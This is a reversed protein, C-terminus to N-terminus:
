RMLTVTGTYVRRTGDEFWVDAKWAYAGQPAFAGQFTGDWAATPIPQNEEEAYWVQQGQPSFVGINYRKIGVGTPKFVQIKADGYTPTFANPAFFAKLWEPAVPKIITDTCVKQGQNDNYAILTVQIQRNISYEYFPDTETSKKGDGFLWLYRNALKSLNKFQVDGLLKPNLNAQYSFDAKPRQFLRLTGKISDRCRENYIAVLNINYLGPRDFKVTIDPTTFTGLETITWRYSLAEESNNKFTIALPACRDTTLIEYEALPKGFIDVPKSITDRCAFENQAIMTVTYVGEKKYIHTDQNRQSIGGDGYQWTFGQALRSLNTFIVTAPTGCENPKQFGFDAIPKPWVQVNITDRGTPCGNASSAALTVPYLGPNRFTYSPNVQTSSNNDYTWVYNTASKSSNGFRLALDECGKFNASDIRAIPSELITITQSLTDACNFRNQTILQISQIGTKRPWFSPNELRSNEDQFRWWYQVADVSQNKLRLSDYGLCYKKTQFSFQTKPLDYVFINLLSTDAFCSDQDYVTLKVVFNGPREFVHSPNFNTANSSGDGFNWVAKLSGNGKSQNAFDVKLPSCGNTSSATFSAKPNGIVLVKSSDEAPCNNLQSLVRLKVWYTGASDFVHSVSTGNEMPKNDGFTWKSGSINPSRNIFDLSQGVCVFPRHTFRVIPSPLIDLYATDTDTGCNSAYLVLTYKGAEDLLFEPSALESSQMKGSQHIVKWSLKAGPTVLGKPRYRFPRCASLTDREIFAKVNPPYVTLKKSLSDRGCQNWAKLMITYETLNKEGTTYVQTPPQIQTTTKGNGLDWLINVPNGLSANFFDVSSPSCGEDQSIGFRVIPYPHVLVSDLRRVVGCLNQVVLAVRIFTDRTYGKLIVSGINAGRITDRGVIWYQTISDGSSRNEVELKFPACGERKPISFDVVPPTTIYLSKAITDSCNASSFAILTLTYTGKQSYNHRPEFDESVAGDGFNWRYKVARQSTNRMQFNQNICPTGSFGFAAVPNSNIRLTQAKCAQCNAVAASRLCYQYTYTSDSRLRTLDILGSLSDLIAPGRFFGNGPSGKPLNFQTLGFCIATNQGATVEKSLDIIKVKVSKSQECNTGKQFTYTYTFDGGGAKELDIQGTLRDIGQGGTWEGGKLNTTLQLFRDAICVTADKSLVLEQAQILKIKLTDLVTCDNRRYSVQVTFVGESSTSANFIGRNPDKIGTGTWTSKGGSPSPSYNLLTPLNVDISSICLSLTDPLQLTPPNEVLINAKTDVVCNNADKRRYSIEKVGIGNKAPDFIGTLSDVGVGGSFIGGTKDVKLPRPSSNICFTDRSLQISESQVVTIDISASAKCPGNDRIFSIKFTGVGAVKPDFVGLSKNTIGRGDWAGGTLNVRLTDASSGSCLPATFGTITAVENKQIDITITDRGKGCQGTAEITVMKLGPNNFQIVGPDRTTSAVPVGDAFTWSYTDIEGQFTIKPMYSLKDCAPNVKELTAKVPPKVEIELSKENPCQASGASYKLTHKGVSLKTPDLLGKTDIAANTRGDVEWIGGEPSAKLTSPMGNQCFVTQNGDLSVPATSAITIQTTDAKPGCPSEIKLIIKSSKTFNVSVFDKGTFTSPTGNEFIWEYKTIEGSAKLKLDTLAISKSDCFAGPSEISIVPPAYIKIIETKIDPNLCANSATLKVTYQGDQIFRVSIDRTNANMAKDTFRWKLTDNPIIEWRTTSWQNSNNKFTAIPNPLCGNSPEIQFSYDAKPLGVVEVQFTTDHPIKCDNRATLKVTYSGPQDYRHSPNQEVSSKGDGFDWLYSKGNCTENKFAVDTSQCVQSKVSFKAVPRFNVVLTTTSLKGSFNTGCLKYGIVTPSYIESADECRKKYSATYIHKAPFDKLTLSDKKGDCWFILYYDYDLSEEKNINVVVSEGECVNVGNEFKVSLKQKDNDINCGNTTAQKLYFNSLCQGNLQNFFCSSFVFVTLTLYKTIELKM